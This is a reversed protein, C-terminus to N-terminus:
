LFLQIQDREPCTRKSFEQKKYTMVDGLVSSSALFLLLDWFVWFVGPRIKKVNTSNLIQKPWSIVDHLGCFITSLLIYKYLVKIKRQVCHVEKFQGLHGLAMM